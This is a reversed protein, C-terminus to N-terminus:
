LEKGTVDKYINKLNILSTRMSEFMDGKSSDQEIAYHKVGNAEGWAIVSAFDVDGNGCERLNEKMNMKDLSLDIDKMHITLIRNPYQEIYTAPEIGAVSLWYTDPEPHIDVQDNAQCIYDMVKLGDVVNNFDYEPCHLGVSIGLPELKKAAEVLIYRTFKYGEEVQWEDDIYKDYIEYSDFLKCEEIIGDLDYVFRDHKIHMSSVTLDYKKIAKAVEIPDNGRMGDLQIADFGIEKVKRLTADYDKEFEKRLGYMQCILKNM